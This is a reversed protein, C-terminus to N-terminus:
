CLSVSLSDETLFCSPLWSLWALGLILFRNKLSNIVVNKVGKVLLIHGCLLLFIVIVVIFDNWSIFCARSKWFMSTHNFLRADKSFTPSKRFIGSKKKLRSFSSWSLFLLAKELFARSKGSFARSKRSFSRVRPFLMIYTIAWRKKANTENPELGDWVKLKCVQM